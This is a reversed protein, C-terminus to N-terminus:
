LTEREEYDGEPEILFDGVWKGATDNIFEDSLYEPRVASIPEIHVVLHYPGAAPEVPINLRVLGSTDAYETFELTKM